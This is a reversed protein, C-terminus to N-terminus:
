GRYIAEKVESRTIISNLVDCQRVPFLGSNADELSSRVHTLHAADFENDTHVTNYWQEYDQKWKNIVQGRDTIIEGTNGIIEFPIKSKRDNAMGLKGIDKWFDKCNNTNLLKDQLESQIQLQYQRKHKRNLRDFCKRANCYAEKLRRRCAGSGKCSLWAKEHQCARDWMEQLEINWYPKAMSKSRKNPIPCKTAKGHLKSKM